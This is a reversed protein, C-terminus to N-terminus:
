DILLQNRSDLHYRTCWPLNRHFRELGFGHLLSHDVDLVSNADRWSLVSLILM